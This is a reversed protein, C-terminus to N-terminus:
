HRLNIVNIAHRVDYKGIFGKESVGCKFIFNMRHLNPIGEDDFGGVIIKDVITELIERQFEDIRKHKLITEKFEKLKGKVESQERKRDQYRDLEGKSMEIEKTISACKKECDEQSVIGSARLEVINDKQKDLNSIRAELDTIKKAPSGSLIANEVSDNCDVGFVCFVLSRDIEIFARLYPKEGIGEMTYVYCDGIGM